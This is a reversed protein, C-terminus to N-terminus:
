DEQWGPRDQSRLADSRFLTAYLEMDSTVRGCEATQPRLRKLTVRRICSVSRQINFFQAASLQTRARMRFFLCDVQIVAALPGCPARAELAIAREAFDTRSDSPSNDGAIRSRGVKVNVPDARVRLAREFSWRSAGHGDPAALPILM